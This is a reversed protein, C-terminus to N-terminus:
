GLPRILTSVCHHCYCLVCVWPWSASTNSYEFLIRISPILRYPTKYLVGGGGARDESDCCSLYTRQLQVVDYFCHSLKNLTVVIVKM